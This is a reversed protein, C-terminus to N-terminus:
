DLYVILSVIGGTVLIVILLYKLFLIITKKRVKLKLLRLQEKFVERKKEKKDMEIKRQQKDQEYELKRIQKKIQNKRKDDSLINAEDNIKKKPVEIIEDVAKSIHNERTFDDINKRINISSIKEEIKDIDEENFNIDKDMNGENLKVLSSQNINYLNNSLKSSFLEANTPNTNNNYYKEEGKFKSYM